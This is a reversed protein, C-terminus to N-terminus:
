FKLGLGMFAGSQAVDYTFGGSTYDTNLYRWGAEVFVQRSLNVGLTGQLQYTLESSVGFGGIDAYAALFLQRTLNWQARIGIIPDVWQRNGSASEPLRKKLQKDISKALKEEASDLRAQARAVEEPKAAAVAARLAVLRQDAAAEAVAAEQEAMSEAIRKIEDRTLPDPFEERFKAIERALERAITGNADGRIVARVNEAIRARDAPAAAAFQALRAQAIARARTVVADVVRESTRESVKEVGANDISASIDLSLYNYRAGALLDVFGWKGEFVRYTLALEVLGQKMDVSASSYLPGPTDGVVGLKAYFGDALIGWRGKRIELQLAAAMDLHSLVTDFGVDINTTLGAVGTTGDVGTAWGYPEIRFEWPSTPAPAQIVKEEVPGGLAPVITAFTVTFAAIAASLARHKM